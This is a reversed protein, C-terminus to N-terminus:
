WRSTLTIARAKLPLVALQLCDERQERMVQRGTGQAVM